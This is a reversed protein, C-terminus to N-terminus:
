KQTAVDRFTEETQQFLGAGGTTSTTDSGGGCAALLAAALALPLLRLRTM